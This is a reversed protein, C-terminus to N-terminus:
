AREYHVWKKSAWLQILTLVLVIAFLIWALASAYGMRFYQFANRFLFYAYFLTSDAPGGTTMIYAETFIQMTGIMGVIANFLIYPSLMPLTVHKFQGWAGAGDIEAAEYLQRPISQLGALWIIMGGGASWLSMLILSPKSWRADQLWGPPVFRVPHGLLRGVLMEIAHSPATSFVWSLAANIAGFNPNLLLIWLLSSAVVPVISPMFFATRYVGIGRMSRNLLMAIALGLAMVLPLRLVMYATNGLSTYFVDDAFLNRYNELGVYRAPSLVDYRTFSTVISFLIPGGTLCLFGILWPSVFMLAAGVERRHYGHTRRNRRYAAYTAVAAVGIIGGYAWFYTTWNVTTPPLPKLFTDLQAQADAQMTALAHQVEADKDKVIGAYAHNIAADMARVHQNWLVQGIPSPPRIKAEPLMQKIVAYAQKIRPPVSPDGSVWKQEIEEFFHRNPHPTPLYLRGEAAMAERDSQQLSMYTRHSTLFQLLKFAGAAQKAGAPIVFSFGGSWTIPKKGAALRDAPIPAPSTIFDMDPKWNIMQQLAFTHDIKLSLKGTLFPDLPGGEQFSSEFADVKTVGGLDDFLDTIFRLARRVPPTDFTVRTGDKSLLDGGAQWAYMYLWSNGVNPAFGLRVLNGTSKDRITLRNAVDRLEEWTRPPRPEGTAPDVMGAQRLQSANSFLLRCDVTVPIGYIGAKETTGPKRYSGEEITWPYYQSLDIRDPDKADQAALFPSLETLAGRAAWEPIAFRDFMMLDPPVGGAIATLLRQGDTTTNPAVSASYVVRYQPNETEFQHLALEVSPGMMTLNWVVIQQRGDSSTPRTAQWTWVIIAIMAIVALVVALRLSVMGRRFCRSAAVTSTVPSKADRLGESVPTGGVAGASRRLTAALPSLLRSQISSLRM